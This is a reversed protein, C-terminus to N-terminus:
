KWDVRTRTDKQAPEPVVYDPHEKIYKEIGANRQKTYNEILSDIESVKHKQAWIESWITVISTIGTADSKVSRTKSPKMSIELLEAFEQWQPKDKIEVDKVLSFDYPIGVGEKYMDIVFDDNQLYDYVLLIKEEGYKEEKADLLANARDAFLKEIDEYELNNLEAVTFELDGEELLWEFREKLPGFNWNDQIDEVLIRTKRKENIFDAIEEMQEASIREDEEVADNAKSLAIIIKSRDFEVTNGDRKIVTM